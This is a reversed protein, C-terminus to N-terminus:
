GLDLRKKIKKRGFVVIWMAIIRCVGTQKANFFRSRQEVDNKPVNPSGM